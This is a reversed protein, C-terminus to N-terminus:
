APRKRNHVLHTAAAAGLVPALLNAFPVLLLAAVIGGLAFRTLGGLPLGASSDARHRLWVMDTLERGLLWANVAWFLLATGIGTVLLLLAIPLAILNVILVRMLGAFASRAEERFPVKRAAAAAAPYYRGEVAHVVEDAFFQLVVLAVIRFLLWAALVALLGAVVYFVDGELGTLRAALPPGFAALAAGLVLFILLTVAMSKGLVRLVRGDGLQGLARTFASLVGTM